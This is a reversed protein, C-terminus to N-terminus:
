YNILDTRQCYFEGGNKRFDIIYDQGEAFGFSNCNQYIPPLLNLFYYFISEHIKVTPKSPSMFSALLVNWDEDSHNDVTIHSYDKHEVNTEM